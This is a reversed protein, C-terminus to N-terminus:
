KYEAINGTDPNLATGHMCWYTLFENNIPTTSQLPSTAHLAHHQVLRTRPSRRTPKQTTHNKNKKQKRQCRRKKGTPGTAQGYTVAPEVDTELPAAPPQGIVDAYTRPSSPEPDQFTVTKPPEPATTPEDPPILDPMTPALPPDNTTTVRLPTHTETPPEPPEPPNDNAVRLPTAPSEDDKTTIGQLLEVIDTLAKTETDTRPALLSKPALHKLAYVIDHLAAIIVDVCPSDPIKVKTPYWKAFHRLHTYRLNRSDLSELM